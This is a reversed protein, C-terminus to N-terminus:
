YTNRGYVMTALVQNYCNAYYESFAHNGDGYGTQFVTLTLESYGWYAVDRLLIM